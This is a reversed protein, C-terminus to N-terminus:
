REAVTRLAPSAFIAAPTIVPEELPIGEGYREELKARVEPASLDLDGLKQLDGIRIGLSRDYLKFVLESCYVRDDSWEFTLDYPRGEMRRAQRRVARLAAPTLVTGAKELRKVVFRGGVGREIWEALPTYRVTAVAELVYPQGGRHLVIGMHSYPSHTALQIARSQASRSTHFVIDGDHVAPLPRAGCATTLAILTALAVARKESRAPSTPRM